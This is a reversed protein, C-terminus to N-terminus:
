RVDCLDSADKYCQVYYEVVFRRCRGFRTGTNRYTLERALEIACTRPFRQEIIDKEDRTTDERLRSLLCNPFITM